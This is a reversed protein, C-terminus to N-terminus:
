RTAAERRVRVSPRPRTRTSASYAENALQDLYSVPIRRRGGIKVSPISGTRIGQRVTSDAMHTLKCFEATTIFRESM